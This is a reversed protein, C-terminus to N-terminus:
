HGGNLQLRLLLLSMDDHRRKVFLAIAVIAFSADFAKKSVPGLVHRKQNVGLIHLDLFLITTKLDEVL